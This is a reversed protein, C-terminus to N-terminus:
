YHLAMKKKCRRLTKTRQVRTTRKRRWKYVDMICACVNWTNRTKRRRINQHIISFVLHTDERSALVFRRKHSRRHYIMYAAGETKKRKNLNNSTRPTHKSCTRFWFYTSNTILWRFTLKVTRFYLICVVTSKDITFNHDINKREDTEFLVLEMGPCRRLALLVNLFILILFLQLMRVAVKMDEHLHM